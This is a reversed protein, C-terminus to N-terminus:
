ALYGPDLFGLETSTALTGGVGHYRPTSFTIRRRRARDDHALGNFVRSRRDAQLHFAAHKTPRMFPVVVLCVLCATQTVDSVGAQKGGTKGKSLVTTVILGAENVIMEVDDTITSSQSVLIETQDAILETLSKIKKAVCVIIRAVDAIM